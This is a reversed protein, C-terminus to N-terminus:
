KVECSEEAAANLKVRVVRMGITDNVYAYDDSVAVYTPWALPVAPTKIRGDPGSDQNGYKGFTTVTNNANDAVEVRFRFLNIHWVRGWADVDFGQGECMCVPTGDPYTEAYPSFATRVWDAGQVECPVHPSRGAGGLYNFKLKPKAAVAEPLGPADQGAEKDGKWYFAGGAPPFKVIAGAMYVYWYHGAGVSGYYDPIKELKGDFFEEFDRGEQRLPATVYTNGKADVRVCSGRRANWVARRKVNLGQDYVEVSHPGKVPKIVYIEDGRLAMYKQTFTMMAGWPTSNTDKGEWKLPKLDRTWRQLGKGEGWAHTIYNGAADVGLQAGTDNMRPGGVNHFQVTRVLKATKEEFQHWQEGQVKVYFEGRVRDVLLDRAGNGWPGKPAPVDVLEFKAGADRYCAIHSGKSAYPVGPAWLLPPEASADLAIRHTGGNPSLGTRPLPMEVAPKEDKYSAFKLLKADTIRSQGDARPNAEPVYSVVYVAGTKPHVQVIHPLVCKIEGVFSRDEEKFVAVRGAEPDAVYLLGAAAAVGRPGALLEKEKGPEGPKGVFPEAKRTATDVRFVCPIARTNKGWGDDAQTSTAYLSKGDSSMCLAARGGVNRAGAFLPESLFTEYPVGGDADLACLRGGSVIWYIRGSSDVVPQSHGAMSRGRSAVPDPYFNLSHWNHLHPVLSGDADQFAGTAKVKAYPADAPFPLLQRVFKGERTMVRVKIGGQNGNATPDQYFAYVEGKPGLALAGTGPHADPEYLMFRDFEPKLGLRVRAKFPGGAAPKGADDKGDWELAQALGAKLPEPPPNKAGLAGAALHRVVKGGADLVAVEVDTAAAVTFAVTFKDGAKTVAPKASFTPPAEGALSATAALFWVISCTLVCRM